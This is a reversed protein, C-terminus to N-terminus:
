RTSRRIPSSCAARPTTRSAAAPLVGEALRGAAKIQAPRMSALKDWTMGAALKVRVGGQVAKGRSMTVGSAPRNGLDYREELLAQQRQEIAPKAARMRKMVQEFPETQDVPSYSTRGRPPDQAQAFMLGAGTMVALAGLWVARAWRQM